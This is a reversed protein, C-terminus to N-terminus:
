NICRRVHAAAAAAPNPVFANCMGPGPGPGLGVSEMGLYSFPVCVCVDITRAFICFRARECVARNHLTVIGGLTRPVRAREGAHANNIRIRSDM